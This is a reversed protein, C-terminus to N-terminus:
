NDPTSSVKRHILRPQQRAIDHSSDPRWSPAILTTRGRHKPASTAAIHIVLVETTVTQSLPMVSTTPADTKAAEAHDISAFGAPGTRGSGVGGVVGVGVVGPGVGGRASLGGYQGGFEGM